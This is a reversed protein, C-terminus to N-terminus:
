YSIRLIAKQQVLRDMVSDQKANPDYLVGLYAYGTTLFSPNPAPIDQDYGYELGIEKWAKNLDDLIEVKLKKGQRYCFLDPRNGIDLTYVWYFSNPFSSWNDKKWDQEPLVLTGDPIGDDVVTVQSTAQKSGVKTRYTVEFIYNGKTLKSVTAYSSNPFEILPTPALEPKSLCKWQITGNRLFYTSVYSGIEEGDISRLSCGPYSASVYIIEEMMIPQPPAVPQSAPVVPTPPEIPKECSTQLLILNCSLLCAFLTKKM